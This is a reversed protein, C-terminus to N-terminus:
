DINKWTIRKVCERITIKALGFEDALEQYSKTSERIYRVSDPNLKAAKGRQINVADSVTEMHDPNVCLPERCLHDIKEEPDLKINKDKEYYHRHAKKSKGEFTLIGYGTTSRGWQWVWCLTKYGKDEELYPFPYSRLHHGTKYRTHTREGCGCRCLNEIQLM